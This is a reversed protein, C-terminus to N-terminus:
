TMRVEKVQNLALGLRNTSGAVQFELQGSPTVGLVKGQQVAGTILTITDQAQAAAGLLLAGAVASLLQQLRFPFRLKMREPPPLSTGGGQSLLGSVEQYIIETRRLNWCGSMIKIVTTTHM